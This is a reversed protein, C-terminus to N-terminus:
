PMRIAMSPGAVGLVESAEPPGLREALIAGACSGAPGGGILISYSREGLAVKVVRM